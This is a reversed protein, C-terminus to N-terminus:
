KKEPGPQAYFSIYEISFRDSTQTKAHCALRFEKQQLKSRNSLVLRITNGAEWPKRFSPNPTAPRTRTTGPAEQDAKRPESVRIEMSAQNQFIQCDGGSETNEREGLDESFLLMAIAPIGIVVVNGGRRSNNRM